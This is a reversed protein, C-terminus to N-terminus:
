NPIEKMFDYDYDDASVWATKLGKVRKVETENDKVIVAIGTLPSIRPLKNWNNKSKYENLKSYTLDTLNYILPILLTDHTVCITLGDKMVKKLKNLWEISINKLEETSASRNGVSYEVVETLDTTSPLIYNEKLFSLESLLFPTYLTFTSKGTRGEEIYRCTNLCRQTNASYYTIPTNGIRLNSGFIQASQIGEKTLDNVNWADISNISHNIVLAVKTM